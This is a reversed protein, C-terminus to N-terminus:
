TEAYLRYRGIIESCQVIHQPDMSADCEPMDMVDWEWEGLWMNLQVAEHWLGSQAGEM